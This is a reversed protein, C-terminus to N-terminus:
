RVLKEVLTQALGGAEGMVKDKSEKITGEFVENEKKVMEELKKEEEKIQSKQEVQFKEREVNFEEQAESYAVDIKEKYEQSLKEAREFTDNATGELKTTKDERTKLVFLVKNFLLRSILFYFVVFVVFQYIAAEGIGLQDLLGGM